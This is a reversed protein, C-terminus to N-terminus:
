KDEDDLVEIIISLENYMLVNVHAFIIKMLLIKNLFYNESVTKLTIVSHAILQIMDIIVNKRFALERSNKLANNISM